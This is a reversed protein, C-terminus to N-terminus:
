QPRNTRPKNWVWKNAAWKKGKKVPCGGHLSNPDVNGNPFLSYFIIVKGEQPKVKLGNECSWMDHPQPLGNSRPFITEGGDEVDTMYWFVTALRNKHGHDIFATNSAYYQPDWADLHASYHQTLEYRLVQVDEQHSTPVGTLGEVRADIAAITPHEQSRVWAQTSTRWEKAAKGKDKDMHSVGSNHMRGDALKVILACEDPELFNRISLVLPQLSLTELELTKNGVVKTQLHGVKVGPWVFQGGEMLLVTQEQLIKPITNLVGGTTTFLRWRQKLDYHGWNTTEKIIGLKKTIRKRLKGFSIGIDSANATKESAKISFEVPTGVVGHKYALVHLRANHVSVCLVHMGPMSKPMDTRTFDTPDSLYDTATCGDHCQQASSSSLSVLLVFKLINM